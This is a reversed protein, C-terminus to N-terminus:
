SSNLYAWMYETYKDAHTKSTVHSTGWRIAMALFMTSQVLKQRWKTREDDSSSATRSGWIQALSVPLDFEVLSRWQDAKLKGHGAKGLNSPPGQYWSPRNISKLDAWLRELEHKTLCDDRVEKLQGQSAVEQADEDIYSSGIVDQMLITNGVLTSAITTNPPNTMNPPDVMNPPQPQLLQDLIHAKKMHKRNPLFLIDVGREACLAKLIAVTLTKLKNQSPNSALLTKASVLQAPTVIQEESKAHNIGLITCCHYSVVREFLTHMGDVIVM